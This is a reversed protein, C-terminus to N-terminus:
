WYVFGARYKGELFKCKPLPSLYKLFDSYYQWHSFFPHEGLVCSYTHIIVNLKRSSISLQPRLCVSSHALYKTLVVAFSLREGQQELPVWMRGAQSTLSSM